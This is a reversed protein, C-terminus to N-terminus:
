KKKRRPFLGEVIATGYWDTVDQLLTGRLEGSKVGTLNSRLNERTLAQIHCSHKLGTTKFDPHSQLLQFDLPHTRDTAIWHFSVVDEGDDNNQMNVILIYHDYNSLGLRPKSIKWIEGRKM